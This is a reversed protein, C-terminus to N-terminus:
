SRKLQNDMWQGHQYKEARGAGSGAAVVSSSVVVVGGASPSGASAVGVSVGSSVVAGVSVSWVATGVSVSGDAAGVVSACSVAVGM